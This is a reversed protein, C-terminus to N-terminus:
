CLKWTTIKVSVIISFRQFKKNKTKRKSFLSDYFIQKYVVFLQWFLDELFHGAVYIQEIIHGGAKFVIQNNTANIVAEVKQQHGNVVKVHHEHGPEHLM